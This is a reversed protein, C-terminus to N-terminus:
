DISQYIYLFGLDLPPKESVAVKGDNFITWRGEKKIHCVYHGCGTNPGIHSVFGMLQYKPSHDKPPPVDASLPVPEDVDMVDLQDLTDMRSMLWDAARELNGGTEKLAKAAHPKQFGMAMLMEVSAEDVGGAAAPAGGPAPLPDNFDHDENHAFAWEIAAEVGANSVAVAARKCANEGFGMGMLSEVIAMDPQPGAAAAAAAPAADEPLLEEGPQEGTSRYKSMDLTEPAPILCDLKKPRWDEGYTYRGMHLVLYKPFYKIGIRKEAVGKSGTVPSEYDDVHTPSFYSDLCKELLILPKVPEEKDEDGCGAGGESKQRKANREEYSTVEAANEANGTNIQMTLAIGDVQKTYRVKGSQLDKLKVETVIEFIKQTSEQGSSRESRELNQTEL